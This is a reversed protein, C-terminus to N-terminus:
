YNLKHSGHVHVCFESLGVLDCNIARIPGVTGLPLHCISLMSHQNFKEKRPSPSANETFILELRTNKEQRTEKYTTQRRM